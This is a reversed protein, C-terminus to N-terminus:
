RYWQLFFYVYLNIELPTCSYEQVTLVFATSAHRDDVGLLLAVAPM